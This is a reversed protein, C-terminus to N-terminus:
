TALHMRRLLDQYRPDRRLGDFRPDIRFRVLWWSHDQYALELYRFAEDTQKLGAYVVAIEYPAIYRQKQQAQLEAVSEKALKTQGSVAYAHALASLYRPHGGSLSVAQRLEAIAEAFMGKGEYVWGLYLHSEIFAPDIEITKRLQEIAQDDRGAFHLVRGFSANNILNLPEEDKARRAEMLTDQLKGTAELYAGHWNRATADNPNIALAREFEQGSGPWDWDCSMKIWALAAHADVLNDDIELAKFAAAKAKPCSDAPSNVEYFGFLAYSQALGAYALGYSPDKDIAQQYYDNAKKLLQETRRNWYYRGQLYLQYAETNETYRKALQKQQADSPRLHLKESVQKAIDEQVALIETFNREYQQGWLQSVEKVDVLETQLNLSGGRRVVRGTLIARVHLDRGIERPDKEKGKYNFVVSRPVVRLKPLQSLNNILNETIGDSLYETNPDGGINVFPVVALSDIPKPRAVFYIGAVAAFVALAAAAIWWRRRANRGAWHRAEVRALVPQHELYRAIDQSLEAASGYRGAPNRNMAKMVVADLDKTWDRTEVRRGPPEPDQECIAAAVVHIADSTTRHPHAGTLLEYLIVGLSYIDSTPKIVEGKLQEPSAYYPTAARQLTLTRADAGEGEFVKAIGFDLLKPIGSRTVIINAPKLDRHIIGRQHAYEVADCIKRFLELRETVPRGRGFNDLLDGEVFEMAYYPLGDDTSGGDLLRAINPHDLRALIQREARFRSVDMGTLKWSRLIKIAVRQEFQGDDRAAEYVVGAGGEGVQRTIRYAGLRAGVMPSLFREEVLNAATALAPEELFNSAHDHAELLERVQAATEADETESLLRDREPQTAARATEFLAKVRQRREPTV